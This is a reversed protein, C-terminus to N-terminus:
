KHLFEDSLIITELLAQIRYGSQAFSVSLEDILPHDTLDLTRGLSYTLLKHVFAGAFRDREHALLYAKLPVVGDIHAGSPLTVATIVPLRAVHPKGKPRPTVRKVTERIRGTADFAEFALGWPDIKKHCRVCAPVDRHRALQESMSLKAFEPDNSDIAEVDPPPPAPPDHLIRELLWVARKIPHSDEGTSQSLLMSGQTLLGGRRRDSVPVRRFDGDLNNQTGYHRALRNNVVMFDSDLFTMASLDNALVERFFHRAELQMDHKLSDDFDPYYQPNIAIREVGDLDLWQRSFQTIFQEIRPDNVMRQFEHKLTQPDRLQGRTALRFLTQDPMTSWLLYSLRTALEYDSVPIKLGRKDITVPELRYLFEPSALIIPLLEKFCAELSESSPRITQYVQLLWHLEADAVPRRFARTAFRHLVTRVYAVEDHDRLESPFLIRQHPAPPWSRYHPALFEVSGIILQPSDFVEPELAIPEKGVKPLKLRKSLLKTLTGDDYVNSISILLGPFKVGDPPVPFDDLYGSFEFTDGQRLDFDTAVFDQVLETGARHGMKIRMRPAGHGDVHHPEVSVRIRFPGSTPFEEIIMGFTESPSLSNDRVARMRVQNSPDAQTAMHQHIPPQAGSVIIRDLAMQAAKLYYELQLPSMQLTAGNNQFGDESISDPPLDSAYDFDAGLLDHMTNQYEYATLRRVVNGGSRKRAVIAATLERTLWTVVSDLEAPTLQEEDEEPMEGLNIADLVDHWTEAARPDFLDPSLTDLRLKGKQKEPGHCKVCRSELVPKVLKDFQQLAAASMAPKISNATAVAAFIILFLSASVKM